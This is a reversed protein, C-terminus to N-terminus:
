KDGDMMSLLLLLGVGAGAAYYWPFGLITM